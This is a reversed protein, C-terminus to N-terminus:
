IVVRAIEELSTMGSAVKDLADRRLTTMGNEVAAARLQDASAEHLFLRQIDEDMLMVEFVGVRGRYGTEFCRSCGVASYPQVKAAEESTYGARVLVDPLVETKTRCEPCLRRVLRQAVVGLLASSTVYPAVDMDVLRTLASPADNTHISSLVLHGTLAARIGIEATEPDRMEGIFVVDPDARLITRLGSAFTLGIKPNVSVQTIGAMQYEIPDEITIIKRVSSDLATAAACLTTSKGSGTPGALLVAGYPKDLFDRMLELHHGAMGLDELTHFEFGQNLLRIVISQGTPTPLSAVRMDLARGDVALTMRGDQPLRRETIDMDAMIKIRSIIGARTSKPLDMVDHLVGDVRYRVRLGNENPEVHIDSARDVVAERILQNVLRVVPVDESASIQQESLPEAATAAMEVVDAFADASAMYKEIAYLIQSPTAVVPTVRKGSRVRVDDIAEIDLPDAMALVISGDRYGIPIVRKLRALRVPIRTAAERDIDIAALNVYEVDKQRALTEALQEESVLLLRVLVEGLKGGAHRQSELAETLQDETVLGSDVLLSGLRERTYDRPQQTPKERKPSM